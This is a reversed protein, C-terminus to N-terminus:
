HLYLGEKLYLCVLVTFVYAQVFAIGSELVMVGFIILLIASSVSFFAQSFALWSFSLLINLLAHGSMMNAFLRVSLSLVRFVYSILEIDV